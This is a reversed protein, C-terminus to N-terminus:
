GGGQSSRTAERTCRRGRVPWNQREATMWSRMVCVNGRPPRVLGPPSRHGAVRLLHRARWFNCEPPSPPPAAELSAGDFACWPLNPDTEKGKPDSAGLNPQCILSATSAIRGISKNAIDTLKQGTSVPQSPVTPPTATRSEGAGKRIDEGERGTPHCPSTGVLKFRDHARGQGPVKCRTALCTIPSRAASYSQGAKEREGDKYGGRNRKKGKM